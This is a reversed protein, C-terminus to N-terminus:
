FESLFKLLGFAYKKGSNLLVLNFGLDLKPPKTHVTSLTKKDM